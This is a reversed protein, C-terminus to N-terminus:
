FLIQLIDVEMYFTTQMFNRYALLQLALTSSPGWELGYVCYVIIM